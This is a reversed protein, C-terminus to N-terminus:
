SDPWPGDWAVRQRLETFMKPDLAVKEGRIHLLIVDASELLIFLSEANKKDLM